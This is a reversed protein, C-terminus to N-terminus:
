GAVGRRRAERLWVIRNVIWNSEAPNFTPFNLGELQSDSIGRNVYFKVPGELADRWYDPDYTGHRIDVLDSKLDLLDKGLETFAPDPMPKVFDPTLRPVVKGRREEHAKSKELRARRKRKVDLAFIENILM